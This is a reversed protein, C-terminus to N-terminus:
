RSPMAWLMASGKTLINNCKNGTIDFLEYGLSTIYKQATGKELGAAEEAWDEFEFLINLAKKKALLDQMGKFVFFEFGQVDVKM